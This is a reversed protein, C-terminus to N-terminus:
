NKNEFLLEINKRLFESEIQQRNNNIFTIDENIRANYGLFAPANKQVSLRIFRLEINNPDAKIASEINQKGKNFTKLKTIPNFVHSANITQLAGLYGLFTESENKKKELESITAQCLDKNSLFVDYNSRVKNLLAENPSVSLLFFAVLLIMENM